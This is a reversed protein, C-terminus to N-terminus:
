EHTFNVTFKSFFFVMSFKKTCGLFARSMRDDLKWYIIQMDLPQKRSSLFLLFNTRSVPHPDALREGESLKAIVSGLTLLSRNIHGGEKLRQGVFHFYFYDYPRTFISDTIVAKGEAISVTLTAQTKAKLFKHHTKKYIWNTSSKGLDTDKPCTLISLEQNAVPFDVWGLRGSPSKLLCAWRCTRDSLEAWIWLSEPTHCHSM